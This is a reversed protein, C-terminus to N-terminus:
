KRNYEKQCKPLEEMMLMCFDVWIAPQDDYVGRFPKINLKECLTYRQIFDQFQDDIFVDLPCLSIASYYLGQSPDNGYKEM